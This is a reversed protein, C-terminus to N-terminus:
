LYLEFGKANLALPNSSVEIRLSLILTEPDVSLRYKTRHVVLRQEFGSQVFHNVRLARLAHHNSVEVYANPNTTVSRVGVRAPALTGLFGVM